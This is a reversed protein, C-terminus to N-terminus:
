LRGERQAAQFLDALWDVFVRVRPSLHRSSPHLVSIPLRPPPNNQLVAVLEGSALQHEVRYRPVQILGLGGVAAATYVEAGRVTIDYALAIERFEGAETFDLGYPQGSESSVYAVMRHTALDELTEPTGFCELYTPSALTVQESAAVQRGVLSSNPLEGARLVCDVGEAVLDVMRDSEQIHLAVQPYRAIFGSLAPLVFFRALTGQVDACVPGKPETNEFMGETEDLRALLDVCRAYYLRGDDTPRVARTTRELLRVGLQGEMHQIARTVSARPIQMDRAADSFSARDVIRVFLRMVAFRDM